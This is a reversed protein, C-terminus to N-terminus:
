YGKQLLLLKNMILKILFIIDQKDSYVLSPPPEMTLLLLIAAITVKYLRLETHMHIGTCTVFPSTGPPNILNCFLFLPKLKLFNLEIGFPYLQQLYM